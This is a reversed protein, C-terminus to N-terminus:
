VFIKTGEKKGVVNPNRAYWAYTRELGEELPVEREWRVLNRIKQINGRRRAVSGKPAEHIDLKKPRWGAVAFLADIARAILSEAGSSTYLRADGDDTIVDSSYGTIVLSAVASPGTRM